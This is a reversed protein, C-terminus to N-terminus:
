YKVSYINLNTALVDKQGNYTTTYFHEFKVPLSVKKRKINLITKPRKQLINNKTQISLNTAKTNLAFQM